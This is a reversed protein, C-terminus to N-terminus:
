VVEPADNSYRWEIESYVVYDDIALCPHLNIMARAGRLSRHESFIRGRSFCAVVYQTSDNQIVDRLNMFSLM